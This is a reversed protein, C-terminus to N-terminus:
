YFGPVPSYNILHTKLMYLVIIILNVKPFWIILNILHKSIKLFIAIKGDM